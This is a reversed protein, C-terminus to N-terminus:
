GDAAKRLHHRLAAIARYYRTKVTNASCGLNTGIADFTLAQFHKLQVVAAEDAPLRAIAAHVQDADDFAAEAPPGAHKPEAVEELSPARRRVARRGANRVEFDCFRFVWTELSAEGRFSELKHWVTALASQAADELEDARLVRGLQGNCLAVFRQACALRASFQELALPERRLVAQVLKLDAPHLVVRPVDGQSSGPQGLPTADDSQLM